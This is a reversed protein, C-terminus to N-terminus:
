GSFRFFFGGCGGCRRWWSKSKTGMAAGFLKRNQSPRHRLHHAHHPTPSHNPMRERRRLVAIYTLDGLSRRWRRHPLVSTVPPLPLHVKNTKTSYSEAVGAAARGGAPLCRGHAPAHAHTHTHTHRHTHTRTRTRAHTHPPAFPGNKPPRSFIGLFNKFRKKIDIYLWIRYPM